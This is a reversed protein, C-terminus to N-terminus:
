DMKLTNKHITYSLPGIEKKQMNSNERCWRNFLSDKEWQINKGAKNFTLQDYLQPNMEPNGIRNWQDLHRNKHWHWVTNIVVAKYYLKLNPITLHGAKGEKKLTAKVIQSTKKNWM